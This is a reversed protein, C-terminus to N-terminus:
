ASEGRLEGRCDSTELAARCLGFLIPLLEKMAVGKGHAWTEQSKVTPGSVCVKPMKLANDNPQWHSNFFSPPWAGWMGPCFSSGMQWPSSVPGQVGPSLVVRPQGQEPLTSALSEGLLFSSNATQSLPARVSAAGTFESPCHGAAGM